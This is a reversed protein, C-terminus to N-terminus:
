HLSAHGCARYVGLGYGRGRGEVDASTNWPYRAAAGAVSRRQDSAGSVTDGDDTSAPATRREHGRRLVNAIVLGIALALTTIVEFYLLARIDARGVTKLNSMSAIGHVVTCFIIPAIIMKILKIFADGLPKMEVTIAPYCHGLLVGIVIATLVQVYLHSYFRRRKISASPLENGLPATLLM